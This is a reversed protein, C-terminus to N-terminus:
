RRRHLTVRTGAHEVRIPFDSELMLLLAAQKDARLAGSLQLAALEPDGIEIPVASHRNMAAVVEGLPTGAFRLVPIRWSLREAMEEASVREGAEPLPTGTPVALQHGATLYVRATPSTAPQTGPTAPSTQDVSVKGETVLVSTEQDGAEVSFATGVATVALVGSQVVFPRAADPQVAFHAAGRRLEIRRTGASFDVALEAGNQVEAASGDPLSWMRPGDVTLTSAVQPVPPVVPAPRSLFLGAAIVAAASLLGASM